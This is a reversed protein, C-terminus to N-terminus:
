VYKFETLKAWCYGFKALLHYLLLHEMFEQIIIGCIVKKRWPMRTWILTGSSLVAQRSCLSFHNWLFPVFSFFFSPLFNSAQSQWKQPCEYYVPLGCEIGSLPSKLKKFYNGIINNKNTHTPTPPQNCPQHVDAARCHSLLAQINKNIKKTFSHKNPPM